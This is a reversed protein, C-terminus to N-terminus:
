PRYIIYLNQRTYRVLLILAGWPVVRHVDCLCHNARDLKLTQLTVFFSVGRGM